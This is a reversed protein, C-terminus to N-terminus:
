GVFVIKYGITIHVKKIVVSNQVNSALPEIPRVAIGLSCELENNFGFCYSIDRKDRKGEM